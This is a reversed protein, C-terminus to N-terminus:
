SCTRAVPANMTISEAVFSVTPAPMIAYRPDAAAGGFRTRAAYRGIARATAYAVVNRM